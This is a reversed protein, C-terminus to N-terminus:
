QKTVNSLLVVADTLDVTGDGNVDQVTPDTAKGATVLDLLQVADTLDITGDNNLDGKGPEIPDVPDSGGSYAPLDIRVGNSFRQAYSMEYLYLMGEEPIIGDLTVTNDGKKIAMRKGYTRVENASPISASSDTRDSLYYLYGDINANVRVTVSTKARSLLANAGATLKPATNERFLHLTYNEVNVGDEATVEIRIVAEQDSYAPTVKYRDRVVNDYAVFAPMIEQGKRMGDVATEAFVRVIANSDNAVPWIYYPERDKGDGYLSSKYDTVDKSFAPELEMDMVSLMSAFSVQLDGLTADASRSHLSFTYNRTQGDKSLVVNLEAAGNELVIRQTAGETGNVTVTIGNEVVFHMTVESVGADLLVEHAEAQGDFAGGDDLKANGGTIEVNELFLASSKIAYMWASEYRFYMNGEKDVLVSGSGNGAVDNQKYFVGSGEGPATCGTKDKLLYLSGNSTDTTFYVYAYGDHKEYATTLTPAGKPCGDVQMQYALTMTGEDSIQLVNMYYPSHVVSYQDKQGCGVYIRHNYILPTGLVTGGINLMQGDTTDITGDEQLGFSCIYGNETAFYIRGNDHVIATSGAGVETPLAIKQLTEGTTKNLCYLSGSGGCAYLCNEKTYVGTHYYGNSDYKRWIATKQERENDPDEDAALLCVLNGDAFGVYLYGNDYRIATAANGGVIDDYIWLSELTKANFAQIRGNNLPVIIMGAAYLPKNFASNGKSLMKVSKVTEGTKKDLYLLYQGQFCCIYDQVLIGDSISNNYDVNAGYQKKWRVEASALSGPTQADVVNVNDDSKWYGGWESDVDELQGQNSKELTFMKEEDGKATFSGEQAKYGPASVTYTYKEEKILEYRGDKPDIKEKNADYIAVVATEPETKVTLYCVEDVYVTLIYQYPSSKEGDGAELIATMKHETLPLTYAGNDTPEGNVTLCTSTTEAGTLQLHLEGMSSPVHLSYEYVRKDFAPTYAVENGDKDSLKFNGLYTGRVIHIQYEETREGYTVAIKLEKPDINYAKLLRGTSSSSLSTAEDVPLLVSVDENTYADTFTARIEASEDIDDRLQPRIFIVNTSEPVRLTYERVTGAVETLEYRNSGSSNQMFLMSELMAEQVTVLVRCTATLGGATVTITATGGEGEPAIVTATTGNGEVQVVDTDDSGWTIEPQETTNEPLLTLNLKKQEGTKMVLSTKDLRIKELLITEDASAAASDTDATSSTGDALAADNDEAATNETVEAPDDASPLAATENVEAGQTETLASSLESRVETDENGSEAATHVAAAAASQPCITSIGLLVALVAATVKNRKLGM